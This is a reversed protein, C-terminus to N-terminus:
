MKMMSIKNAKLNGLYQSKLIIIFDEVDKKKQM